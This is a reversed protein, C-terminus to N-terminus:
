VARQYLRSGAGRNESPHGEFGGTRKKLYKVDMM